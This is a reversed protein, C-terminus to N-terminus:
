LYGYMGADYDSAVMHPFVVYGTSWDPAKGVAEFGEVGTLEARLRGMLGGMGMEELAQRSEPEHVQMDFMALALNHLQFQAGYVRKTHMLAALMDEPIKEEPRAQGDAQAEWAEQYAPSLYSYHRSLAKMREPLWCWRELMQSPAEGFDIVTMTGHFFAHKTKAVLDHIGHGLEHFLLVADGQHLLSPKKATPKPFNCM